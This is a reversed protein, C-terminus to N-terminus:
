SLVRGDIAEELSIYSNDLVREYPTHGRDEVHLCGRRRGSGSSIIVSTM